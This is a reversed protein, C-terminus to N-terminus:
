RGNEDSERYPDGLMVALRRGNEALAAVEIAVTQNCQHQNGQQQYFGANFARILQSHYGAKGNAERRMMDAALNRWKQDDRGFCLTRLYHLQGLTNALAEPLDTMGTMQKEVRATVQRTLKKSDPIKSESPKSNPTQTIAQLRPSATQAQALGAYLLLLCITFFRKM